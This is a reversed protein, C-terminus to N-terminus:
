QTESPPTHPCPPHSSTKRMRVDSRLYLEKSLHIPNVDFNRLNNEIQFSKNLEHLFIDFSCDKKWNEIELGVLWIMCRLFVIESKVVSFIKGWFNKENWNSWFWAWTYFFFLTHLGCFKFQECAGFFNWWLSFDFFFMPKWAMLFFYKELGVLDLLFIIENKDGFFNEWFNNWALTFFRFYFIWVRTKMDKSFLSNMGIQGLGCEHM